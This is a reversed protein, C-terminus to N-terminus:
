EITKWCPNERPPIYRWQNRNTEMRISSIAGKIHPVDMGTGERVMALLAKSSTWFRTEQVGKDLLTAISRGINAMTRGAIVEQLSIDFGVPCSRVITEVIKSNSFGVVIYENERTDMFFNLKKKTELDRVSEDSFSILEARM